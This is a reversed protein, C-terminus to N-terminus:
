VMRTEEDRRGKHQGVPTSAAPSREFVLLGHEAVALQALAVEVKGAVHAALPEVAAVAVLDVQLVLVVDHILHLAFELFAARLATSPMPQLALPALRKGMPAAHCQCRRTYARLVAVVM